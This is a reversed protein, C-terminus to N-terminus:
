APPGREFILNCYEPPEIDVPTPSWGHSGPDEVYGSAFQDVLEADLSNELYERLVLSHGSKCFVLENFAHCHVPGNGSRHHDEHQIPCSDTVPNVAAEAHHHHPIVGHGVMVSFILLLFFSIIKERGM